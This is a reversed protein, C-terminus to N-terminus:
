KLLRLVSSASTAAGSAAHLKYLNPHANFFRNRKDLFDNELRLGRRSEFTEEGKERTLDTNWKVNDRQAQAMKLDSSLRAASSLSSGIGAFKSPPADMRPVSVVGSAGAPSSAGGQAALLPNLGAAKLDAAERQHATSSMREQFAMQKDAMAASAVNGESAIRLNQANTNSVNEAGQKASFFDVAPGLVSGFVSGWGM